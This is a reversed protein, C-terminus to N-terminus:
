GRLIQNNIGHKKYLWDLANKRKENSNTWGNLQYADLPILRKGWIPYEVKLEASEQSAELLLQESFNAQKNIYRPNRIQITDVTALEHFIWPSYTGDIANKISVSNDSDIFFICETKDIMRTLAYSLMMHVHATSANRKQYSYYSEDESLCYNNDISKLLEDSHGWIQSDIFSELNFNRKLWASLLEATKADKSSHSIFIDANIEPFWENWITEASLPTDKSTSAISAIRKLFSNDSHFYQQFQEVIENVDTYEYKMSELITSESIRFAKYM